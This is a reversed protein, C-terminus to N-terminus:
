AAINGLESHATTETHAYCWRVPDTEPKMSLQHGWQLPKATSIIETSTTTTSSNGATTCDELEIEPAAYINADTLFKRKPKKYSIFGMM